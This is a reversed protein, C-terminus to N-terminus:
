NGHYEDFDPSEILFPGFALYWGSESGQKFHIWWCSFDIEFYWGYIRFDIRKM